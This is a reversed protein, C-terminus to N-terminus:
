GGPYAAAADVREIRERGATNVASRDRPHDINGADGARANDVAASDPVCTRRVAARASRSHKLLVSTDEM